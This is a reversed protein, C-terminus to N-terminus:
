LKPYEQTIFRCCRRVLEDTACGRERAVDDLEQKLSEDMEITLEDPDDMGISPDRSM